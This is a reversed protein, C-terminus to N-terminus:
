SEREHVRDTTEYETSENIRQQSWRNLDNKKSYQKGSSANLFFFFCNMGMKIMM